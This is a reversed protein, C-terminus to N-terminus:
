RSGGETTPTTMRARAEDLAGRLADLGALDFGAKTVAIALVAVQNDSTVGVRCSPGTTSGAPALTPILGAVDALAPDTM